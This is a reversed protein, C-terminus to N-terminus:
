AVASTGIFNGHIPCKKNILLTVNSPLPETVCLCKEGQTTTPAVGSETRGATEPKCESLKARIAQVAEPYFSGYARESMKMFEFIDQELDM